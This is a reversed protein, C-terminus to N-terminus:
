FYKNKLNIYKQKYKLYKQKVSGESRVSGESGEGGPENRVPEAKTHGNTTNGDDLRAGLLYNVSKLKETLANLLVNDPSSVTTVGTPTKELLINFQLISLEEMFENWSKKLAPNKLEKYVEKLAEDSKKLAVITEKLKTNNVIHYKTQDGYKNFEKIIKKKLKEKEDNEGELLLNLIQRMFQEFNANGGFTEPKFDKVDIEHKEGETEGTM